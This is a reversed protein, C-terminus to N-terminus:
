CKKELNIMNIYKQSKYLYKEKKIIVEYLLEIKKAKTKVNRIAINVKQKLIIAFFDFNIKNPFNSLRTKLERQKM